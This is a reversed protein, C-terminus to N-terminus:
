EGAADATGRARATLAALAQSGQARRRQSLALRIQQEDLGLLGLGVETDALWPAAALQKSGADAQAARSLHIPSRWKPAITVWEAPVSDLGNRIALARTFSRQFAPSWDDTAGEAEAILDERSAIYSEASTPNARNVLGLSEVPISTEGAFQGAIHEFMDVHPQPSAAPFQHVEARVGTEEDDPLGKIRGMRVRWPNPNKEGGALDALTAGFMWFEPFSFTDAHAEMRIAVRTAQELLAIVARNIRSSGFPRGARPKYVLPEAPVGFKHDSREVAWGSSDRAASVTLGDMYLAFGTVRDEEDRDTISLLNELRRARPNWDGVANLADKVHILAKPEWAEGATNVLFAPGHILSSVVGSDSETGLLNESWVERSGLSELDGDAWTFGDLNCRRALIDVAKAAWGLVIGMRFYEPPITSTRKVAYKGEYLRSRSQNRGARRTLEDFLRGLLRQEDDTLGRM